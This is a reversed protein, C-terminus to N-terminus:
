EIAFRVTESQGAQTSALLTHPGPEPTWLWQRQGPSTSLRRGDLFVDVPAASRTSVQLVFERASPSATAGLDYRAGDRPFVIRPASDSIGGKPPCTDSWTEPALPRRAARAWALYRDPYVEVTNAVAGACGERALRGQEDVFVRAHM